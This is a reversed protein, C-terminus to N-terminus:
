KVLYATPSSCDLTKLKLGREKVFKDVGRSESWTHYGYEDFVIYGGDSVIPWFNNLAHYTPEELDVDMYLLSIKAGPRNQVYEKSTRILDGEVFEFNPLNIKKISEGLKTAYTPSHSFDRGGFLEAMAERDKGSLSDLLQKTDFFDFGVVKKFSNPAFIHRIKLWSVVGSGKFVGCEVIDGPIGVVENFLKARFLLKALVRTDADFIFSNFSTYIDQKGPTIESKETENLM